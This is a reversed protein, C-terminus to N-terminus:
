ASTTQRLRGLAATAESLPAPPMAGRARGCPRSEDYRELQERALARVSMKREYRDGTDSDFGFAVVTAEPRRRVLDALAETQRVVARQRRRIAAHRWHGPVTVCLGGLAGLRLPLRRAERVDLRGHGAGCGSALLLAALVAATQRATAGM